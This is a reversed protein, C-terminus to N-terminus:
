IQKANVRIDTHYYQNLTSCNVVVKATYQNYTKNVTSNCIDTALTASLFTNSFGNLAITNVSKAEAQSFNSVSINFPEPEFCRSNLILSFFCSFRSISSLMNTGFLINPEGQPKRAFRRWNINSSTPSFLSIRLWNVWLLVHLWFSETLKHELQVIWNRHLHWVICLRAVSDFLEEREPLDILYPIHTHM